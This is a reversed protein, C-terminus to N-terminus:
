HPDEYIHSRNSTIDQWRYFDPNNMFENFQSQTMGQSEAWNRWYWYENGTTHGLEVNSPNVWKRSIEDYIQGTKYNVKTNSNVADITSQRIYSRHLYHESNNAIGVETNSAFQGNPRHWRGNADQYFGSSTGSKGVAGSVSKKGALADLDLFGGEDKLLAKGTSKLNDIGDLLKKGLGQQSSVANKGAGALGAEASTGLAKQAAKAGAKKAAIAGAGEAAAGAIKRVVKSGAKKLATGAANGAVDLIGTAGAVAAEKASIKKVGKSIAQNVVNGAANGAVNIAVKKAVAKATTKAVTKAGTKAATGAASAALGAGGTAAGVGGIIAGEAASGAVQKWNIGKTFSKNKIAQSAYSIGGSVVAGIAAGAVIHLFHGDPDYGTVPQNHCYTYKNLSLPDTYKGSATDETLFRATRPNYYRSQLYYLGSESDQYYGAYRYPNSVTEKETIANGFADYDYENKVEGAQDLVSIVDGHNNYQYYLMDSGATAILNTGHINTKTQGATQETLLKTGDYTFVATSGNVNKSARLGSAYYTYDSQSGDSGSIHTLQNLEDYVYTDTKTTGAASDKAVVRTQNGNADYEYDTHVTTDPKKEITATLRNQSDYIYEIATVDSGDAVRQSRRNGARDYTYGTVRGSPETMSVLQKDGNYSYTTIGKPEQKKTLLGEPDYNYYYKKNTGDPNTNIIGMLLNRGDFTYSTKMGNSHIMKIQNGNADYDYWTNQGNYEVKNIRNMKDYSYRTLQNVGSQMTLRNGAADYSYGVTQNQSTVMKTMRSLADYSYKTTGTNDTMTLMNGLKDYSYRYSIKGAKETLLRNCADYTYNTVTGNRDTKATLNSAKDYSYSEEKGAGDTMSIKRNMSDYAYSVTRGEGDKQELLNGALDYRYATNNSEADTVKVLQDFGDYSYGTVKGNRDTEKILNGAADYQYRTTNGAQDTSSIKRGLKDYGTSTEGGKADTVKIQRGMSDYTYSISKDYPDTTRILQGNKDYSYRTINGNRDQKATNNGVADYEMVEKNGYADTIATNRDLDDYAYKTKNGAADTKVTVNGAADYTYATVAGLADKEETVRSLADYKKSVTRGLADEAKIVNGVEDYTYSQEGNEANIEKVVRNLADYNWKSVQGKANTEKKKNGNKDYEYTTICDKTEGNEQYKLNMSIRRDLEDYRCETVRGLVDTERILNGNGDYQKRTVHGLADTVETERSLLDLETKTVGGDAATVTVTGNKDDYVTSTKNGNKDTAQIVRGLADYRTEVSNGLADTERIVNGLADYQYKTTQGLAAKQETKQNLSDYSYVTVRGLADTVHTLNGNKDYDYLTKEKLENKEEIKQNIADYEYRTTGKPTIEKLVNGVHDYSYETANGLADTLKVLQNKADYQYKTENGKKDTESTKNGAADYSYKETNGLADTTKVLQGAEDYEYGTVNGLADTETVKRGVHDYSAKTVNGLADQIKKCNNHSATYYYTTVAGRQDTETKTLGKIKIDGEAAYYKYQTVNGLADKEEMLKIGNDDYTHTTKNGAKDTESVLNGYTDYKMTATNGAADTVSVPNGHKNYETVTKNKNKDIATERIAVKHNRRYDEYTEWVKDGDRKVTINVWKDSDENYYEYKYQTQGGMADREIVPKLDQNFTTKSEKGNGNIMYRASVGESKKDIEDDYIFYQIINDGDYQRVIRGLADYDNRVVQHKLPDNVASLMGSKEHYEFTTSNGLVDKVGTLQKKKNYSYSVSRDASDVVKELLGNGNYTFKLYRGVADTLKSIKGDSYSVSIENGYRDFMGTLKGKKDFEIKSLDANKIRYGDATKSFTVDTSNNPRISGDSNETFFIKTGSAFSVEYGGNGDIYWGAVYADKNKYKIKYWTKGSVEETGLVKVTKGRSLGGIIKKDAGAGARVNLRSVDVKGVQINGGSSSEQKEVKMDLNTHYGKGLISSENASLSNYTRTFSLNNGPGELAIDTEDYVYNGTLLNTSATTMWEQAEESDIGSYLDSFELNMRSEPLDEDEAEESLTLQKSLKEYILDIQKEVDEQTMSRSNNIYFYGGKTYTAIKELLSTNTGSGLAVTNVVVNKKNCLNTAAPVPNGGYGDTFLVIVKRKSNDKFMDVADVIAKYLDTGGGDYYMGDLAKNLANKDKTIKCKVTTFHEFALIGARYSDEKLNKLFKKTALIRYYNRDNSWMSGSQDISFVIDVNSLDISMKSYGLLYTGGDTIVGVLTNKEKDYTVETLKELEKTDYNVKYVSLDDEGIGLEQLEEDTYHFTIEGEKFPFGGTTVDVANGVMGELSNVLVNDSDNAGVPALVLNSDGSINVEARGSDSKKETQYEGMEDKELPDLGLLVEAGDYIGDGDTDPELPNTGRRVEEADDLGDNDTDKSFVDTGHLLEESNTLGDKDDDQEAEFTYERDENIGLKIENSNDSNGRENVAVVVYYYIEDPDMDEDVYETKLLKDALVYYPGGSKTSRYLTYSRAGLTEDWILKAANNEIKGLLTPTKAINRYCEENSLSSKTFKNDATVVYYYEGKEHIDMDTYTKATLDTALVTYKGDTGKKRQVTYTAAGDVRNWSLVPYEGTGDLVLKPADLELKLDEYSLLEYNYPGNQVKGPKGQFGIEIKEGKKLNGNYGANQIVYHNGNHEIMNGNWVSDIDHDFDFSLVWDRITKNTDNTITISGTYGDGWDSTVSFEAKYNDGDLTIRESSLEFKSPKNITDNDWNATFSFSVSAGPAIDSNWEANKFQYTDGKHDYIFANWIETIEHSFNCTVNWNKITKESTNTITIEGQFQNDWQNIVKFGTSFEKKSLEVGTEEPLDSAKSEQGSDGLTNNKQAANADVTSNEMSSRKATNSDMEVTSSGAKATESGTAASAVPSFGTQLTIAATLIMALVRKMRKKHKVRM